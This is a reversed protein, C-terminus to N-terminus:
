SLKSVNETSITRQDGEVKCSLVVESGETAHEKIKIPKLKPM